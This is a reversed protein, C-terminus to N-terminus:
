TRGRLAELVGALARSSLSMPPESMPSPDEASGPPWPAQARPCLGVPFVGSDNPGTTAPDAVGVPDEYPVGRQRALDRARLAVPAPTDPSSDFM